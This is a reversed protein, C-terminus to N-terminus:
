GKEQRVADWAASLRKFAAEDGGDAADPHVAKARARYAKKAEDLSPVSNTPLGLEKLAWAPPGFSLEVKVRQGHQQHQRGDGTSGDSARQHSSGGASADQRGASAGQRGGASAGQGGASAGEQEAQKVWEKSFAGGARMEASGSSFRGSTNATSGFHRFRFALMAYGAAAGVLAAAGLLSATTASSKHSSSPEDDSPM